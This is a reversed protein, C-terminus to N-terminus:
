STKFLVAIKLAGVEKYLVVRKPTQSKFFAATVVVVVVNCCSADFKLLISIVM